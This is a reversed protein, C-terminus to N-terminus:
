FTFTGAPLMAGPPPIDLRPPQEAIGPRPACAPPSRSSAASSTARPRSLPSWGATLPRGARERPSVPISGDHATIPRRGEFRMIHRALRSRGPCPPSDSRRDCSLLLRSPASWLEDPAEVGQCALATGRFGAPYKGPSPPFGLFPNLVVQNHVGTRGARLLRRAVPNPPGANQSWSGILPSQDQASRNRNGEPSPAQRLAATM